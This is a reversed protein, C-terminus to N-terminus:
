LGHQALAKRVIEEDGEDLPEGDQYQAVLEGEADRVTIWQLDGLGHLKSTREEGDEGYVYTISTEFTLEVTDPKRETEDM